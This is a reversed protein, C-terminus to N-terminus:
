PLETARIAEIPGQNKADCGQRPNMREGSDSPALSLKYPGIAKRGERLSQIHM